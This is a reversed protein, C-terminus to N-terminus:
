NLTREEVFKKLNEYSATAKQYMKRINQKDDYKKTKDFWAMKDYLELGNFVILTDPTVDDSVDYGSVDDRLTYNAEDYNSKYLFTLLQYTNNKGKIILHYIKLAEQRKGLDDSDGFFLKYNHNMKAEYYLELGSGSIESMKNADKMSYEDVDKWKRLQVEKGSVMEATLYLDDLYGSRHERKLEFEAQKLGMIVLWAGFASKKKPEHPEVSSLLSLNYNLPAVRNQDLQNLWLIVLSVFIPAILIEAVIM